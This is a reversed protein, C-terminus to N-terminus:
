ASTPFQSRDHGQLSIAAGAIIAAAGSTGELSTLTLYNNAMGSSKPHLGATLINEGWAYCDVRNGYNTFHM